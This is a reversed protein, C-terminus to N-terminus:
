FGIAKKKLCLRSPFFQIIVAMRLLLAKKGQAERQPSKSTYLRVTKLHVTSPRYACECQPAAM